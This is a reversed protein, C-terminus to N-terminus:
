NARSAWILTGRKSWHTCCRRRKLATSTKRGVLLRIVDAFQSQDISKVAREREGEIEGGGGWRGGPGKVGTERETVRHTETQRDTETERHTERDRDRDTQRDTQRGGGM